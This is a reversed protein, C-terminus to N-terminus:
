ERKRQAMGGGEARRIIDALVERAEAASKCNWFATRLDPAVDGGRVALLRYIGKRDGYPVYDSGMLEQVVSGCCHHLLAHFLQRARELSGCNQRLFWYVSGVTSENDKAMVHAIEHVIIEVATTVDECVAVTTPHSYGAIGAGTVVVVLADYEQRLKELGLKEAVPLLPNRRLGGIANSVRRVFDELTARHGDWLSSRYTAEALHLSAILREGLEHARRRVEDEVDSIGHGFIAYEFYNFMGLPNYVETLQACASEFLVSDVGPIADAGRRVQALITHYLSSVFSYRLRIQPGGRDAQVCGVDEAM